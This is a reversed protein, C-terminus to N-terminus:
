SVTVNAASAVAIVVILVVIFLVIEIIAVWIAALAFGRGKEGTRKIQSLAVAGLVIAIVNFGLIALIFGVIGLVNTRQTQVGQATQIGPDQGYAGPSRADTM